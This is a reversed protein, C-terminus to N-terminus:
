EVIGDQELTPFPMNIEAYIKQLKQILNLRDNKYALLKTAFEEYFSTWDLKYGINEM